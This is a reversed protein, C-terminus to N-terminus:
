AGRPRIEVKLQAPGQLQRRCAKQQCLFEAANTGLGRTRPPRARPNRKDGFVIGGPNASENGM